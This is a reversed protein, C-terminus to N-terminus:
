TWAQPVSFADSWRHPLWDARGRERALSGLGRHLRGVRPAEVNVASRPLLHLRGGFIGAPGASAGLQPSLGPPSSLDPQPESLPSGGQAQGHQSRRIFGLFGAAMEWKDRAM